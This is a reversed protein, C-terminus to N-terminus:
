YQEMHQYQFWDLDQFIEYMNEMNGNSHLLRIVWLMCFTDKRSTYLVTCFYLKMRILSVYKSEETSVSSSLTLFIPYFNIQVSWGKFVSLPPTQM